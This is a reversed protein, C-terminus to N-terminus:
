PLSYADDARASSTIFISIVVCDEVAQRAKEPQYELFTHTKRQYSNTAIEFVDTQIQPRRRPTNWTSRAHPKNKSYKFM